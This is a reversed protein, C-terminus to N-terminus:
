YQLGLEFYISFNNQKEWISSAFPRFVYEGTDTGVFSLSTPPPTSASCDIVEFGIFLTKESLVLNLDSIEFVNANDFMTRMNIPLIIDETLLEKSPWNNEIKRIHLRIRCTDYKNDVKFFVKNIKYRQHPISIINGIEGGTKHSYWGRFFSSEGQMSSIFRKKLFSILSVPELEKAEEELIFIESNIATAVPLKLSVFGISSIVLSDNHKVFRPFSMRFSGNQDAVTGANKGKVGITAFPIPHEDSKSLIKGTFLQSFSESYFVPNFLFSAFFLFPLLTRYRIKEPTFIISVKM